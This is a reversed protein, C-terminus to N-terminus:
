DSYVLEDMQKIFEDRVHGSKAIQVLDEVDKLPGIEFRIREM